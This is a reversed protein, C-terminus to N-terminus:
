DQTGKWGLARRYIDMMQDAIREWSLRTQAREEIQRSMEHRMAPDQLVKVVAESLAEADRPPVLYGTAGDEVYEPLGGVRTAVVPKRFAYATLVVGSQTADVYPCVIVSAQQCLEALRANSIYGDILEVHGDNPLEPPAPPTYGSVPRGAVVLRLGRVKRAIEPAAQYLYELGKYPSLRGFFLVTRDSETASGDLWERYIEYSGLNTTHLHGAPIGHRAAFSALAGQNYLVFHQTRAFTLWNTLDKRWSHEGSHPTPDHVALVLPFRELGGLAPALRLNGADMYLLHPKIGNIHRIAQRSVVWTGPHFTKTQHVVLDFSACNEWYSRVGPPFCDRLIPDAAVIGAPLLRPAVDFLASNWSEPSIEMIVHLDIRRSLARVLPLAADLFPPFTYYVARTRETERMM